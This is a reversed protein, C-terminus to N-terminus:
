KLMVIYGNNIPIIRSNIELPDSVNFKFFKQFSKTEGGLVNYKCDCILVHNNKKM